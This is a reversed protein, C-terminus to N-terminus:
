GPYRAYSALYASGPDHFHHLFKEYEAGPNVDPGLPTVTLVVRGDSTVNTIDIRVQSTRYPLHQFAPRAIQQQREYDRFRSSSYYRDQRQIEPLLTPTTPTPTPDGGASQVQEPEQGAGSRHTSGTSRPSQSRVAINGILLLAILFAVISLVLRGPQDNV